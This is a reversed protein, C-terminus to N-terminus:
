STSLMDLLGKLISVFVTLIAKAVTFSVVITRRALRNRGTTEPVWERAVTRYPILLKTLASAIAKPIKATLEEVANSLKRLEDLAQSLGILM